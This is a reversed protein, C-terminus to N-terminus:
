QLETEPWAEAIEEPAYRLLSAVIQEAWPNFGGRSRLWEKLSAITLTGIDFSGWQEGLKARVHIGCGCFARRKDRAEDVLYIAESM